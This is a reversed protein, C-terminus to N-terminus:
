KQRSKRWLTLAIVSFSAITLALVGVVFYPFDDGSSETGSDGGDNQGIDLMSTSSWGHINCHARVAVITTNADSRVDYSVSFPNDQPPPPPSIDHTFTGTSNTITLGIEDVYHTSSPANHTVSIMLTVSSGSITTSLQVSPVDARVLGSIVLLSLAAILCIASVELQRRIGLM